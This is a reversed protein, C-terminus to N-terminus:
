QRFLRLRRLRTLALPCDARALAALDRLIQPSLVVGCPNSPSNVIIAKTRPSIARKVRDVDVVFSPHTDVVVMTGSALTILHPYSVFYPDFVIVEDGPNVSVMVALALGGSTGCTIMAARDPQRGHDGVLQVGM